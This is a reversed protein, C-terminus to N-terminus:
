GEVPLRLQALWRVRDEATLKASGLLKGSADQFFLVRREEADGAFITTHAEPLSLVWVVKRADIVGVVDGQLDKQLAAALRDAVVRQRDAGLRVSRGGLLLDVECWGQKDSRLTLELGTAVLKIVM